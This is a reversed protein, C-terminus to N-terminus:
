CHSPVSSARADSRGPLGDPEHMREHGCRGVVVHQEDTARASGHLSEDVVQVELVIRIPGVAVAHHDAWRHGPAVPSDGMGIGM